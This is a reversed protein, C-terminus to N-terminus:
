GWKKQKGWEHAALLGSRWSGPHAGPFINGPQGGTVGVMPHAGPNAKINPTGPAYTVTAMGGKRGERRGGNIQEWQLGSQKFTCLSVSFTAPKGRTWPRWQRLGWQLGSYSSHGLGPLRSLSTPIAPPPPFESFFLPLAALCQGLLFPLPFSESPPLIFFHPLRTPILGTLWVLCRFHCCGPLPHTPMGVGTRGEGVSALGLM